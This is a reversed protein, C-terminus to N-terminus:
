RKWQIDSKASMQDALAQYTYVIDRKYIKRLPATVLLSADFADDSNLSPIGIGLGGLRAPLAMLKMEVDNPLPHGTLNPILGSRLIVDLVKLHHGISPVTCTFYSWKHTM